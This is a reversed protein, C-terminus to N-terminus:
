YVEVNEFFIQLNFFESFDVNRYDFFGLFHFVLVKLYVISTRDVFEAALILPAGLIEIVNHAYIQPPLEKKLQEVM